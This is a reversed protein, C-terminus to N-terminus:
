NTAANWNSFLLLYLYFGKDTIIQLHFGQQYSIHDNLYIYMHCTSWSGLMLSHQDVSPYLDRYNIPSWKIIHCFIARVSKNYSCQIFIYLQQSVHSNEFFVLLLHIRCNKIKRGKKSITSQSTSIIFVPRSEAEIIYTKITLLTKLM